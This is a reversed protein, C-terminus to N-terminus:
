NNKHIDLGTIKAEKDKQRQRQIVSDTNKLLQSFNAFIKWGQNEDVETKRVVTKHCIGGSKRRRPKGPPEM